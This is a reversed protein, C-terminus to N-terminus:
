PMSDNYQQVKAARPLASTVNRDFTRPPPWVQKGGEDATCPRLIFGTIFPFILLTQTNM